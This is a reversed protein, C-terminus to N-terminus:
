FVVYGGRLDFRHTRREIPYTVSQLEVAADFVRHSLDNDQLDHLKRLGALDIGLPKAGLHQRLKLRSRLACRSRIYWIPIQRREVEGKLPVPSMVAM